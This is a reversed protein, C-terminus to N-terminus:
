AGEEHVVEWPSRIDICPYARMMNIAHFGRIREHHVLDHFNWSVLLDAASVSAAAVHAADARSSHSLVGASLYAETLEVVRRFSRLGDSSRLM